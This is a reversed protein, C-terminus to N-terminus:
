PCTAPSVTREFEPSGLAEAVRVIRPVFEILEPVAGSYMRSPTAIEAASKLVILGASMSLM